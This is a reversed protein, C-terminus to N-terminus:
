ATLTGRQMEMSAQRAESFYSFLKRCNSHFDGWQEQFLPLHFTRCFKECTFSEIHDECGKTTVMLFVFKVLTDKMISIELGNLDVIEQIQENALCM